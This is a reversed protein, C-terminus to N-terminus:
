KFTFCQPTVYTEHFYLEAIDANYVYNTASYAIATEYGNPLVHRIEVVRGSEGYAFKRGATEPHLPLSIADKVPRDHSNVCYVSRLVPKRRWPLYGDYGQFHFRYSRSRSSVEGKGIQFLGQPVGFRDVYDRFYAVKERKWDYGYLSACIALAVACLCMALFIEIFIRKRKGCQNCRVLSAVSRRMDGSPRWHYIALRRLAKNAPHENQLRSLAEKAEKYQVPAVTIEEAGCSAALLFKRALEGVAKPAGNM